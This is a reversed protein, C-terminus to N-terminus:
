RGRRTSDCECRDGCMRVEVQASAVKQGTIEVNLTTFLFDADAVCHM